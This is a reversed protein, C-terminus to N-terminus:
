HLVQALQRIEIEASAHLCLYTRQEYIRRPTPHARIYPTTHPQSPHLPRGTRQCEYPSCIPHFKSPRKSQCFVVFFLQFDLLTSLSPHTHKIRGFRTCHAKSWHCPGCPASIVQNEFTGRKPGLRVLYVQKQGSGGLFGWLEVVTHNITCGSMMSLVAHHCEVLVVHKVSANYRIKSLVSHRCKLLVNRTDLWQHPSSSSSVDIAYVVDVIETCLILM